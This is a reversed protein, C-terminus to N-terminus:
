EKRKGIIKKSLRYEEPYSYPFALDELQAAIDSMGLRYALPALIELTELSKKRRKIPELPWLTKMNDLRDALKILIIRIDKAMALIMNRFNEKEVNDNEKYKIQNVKTLGNVLFSVEDNFQSKIESIPVKCDEVVDHLLSAIVANTDLKMQSITLAVRLPHNIFPEGSERKQEFHSKEAFEFAKELLDLERENTSDKLNQIIKQKLSKM